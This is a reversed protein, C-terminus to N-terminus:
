VDIETVCTGIGYEMVQGFEQLAEYLPFEQTYPAIAFVTDGLMAQLWEEARM